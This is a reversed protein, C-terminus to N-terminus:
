SSSSWSSLTAPTSSSVSPWSPLCVRRKLVLSVYRQWDHATCTVSPLRPRLHTFLHRTVSFSALRRTNMVGSKHGGFLWLRLGTSQLFRLCLEAVLRESLLAPRSNNSAAYCRISTHVVISRLMISSALSWHCRWAPMRALSPCKPQESHFLNYRLNYTYYILNFNTKLVNILNNCKELYHKLHSPIKLPWNMVHKSSLGSPFSNQFNSLM